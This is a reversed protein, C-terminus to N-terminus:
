QDKSQHELSRFMAKLDRLGRVTVIVTILAFSAGSIALWVTWFIKWATM